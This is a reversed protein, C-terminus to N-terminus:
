PKNKDDKWLGESLVSGQDDYDFVKREFAKGESNLLEVKATKGDLKGGLHRTTIEVSEIDGWSKHQITEIYYKGDPSVELEVGDPRKITEAM